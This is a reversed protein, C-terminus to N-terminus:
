LFLHVSLEPWGVSLFGITGIVAMVHNHSIPGLKSAIRAFNKGLQPNTRPNKQRIYM